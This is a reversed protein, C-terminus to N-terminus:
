RTFYINLSLSCFAYANVPVIFSLPVCARGWLKESFIDMSSVCCYIWFLALISAMLDVGGVESPGGDGILWRQPM